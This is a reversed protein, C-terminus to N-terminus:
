AAKLLMKAIAHLSTPPAEITGHGNLYVIGCTVVASGFGVRHLLNQMKASDQDTSQNTNALSVLWEKVTMEKTTM